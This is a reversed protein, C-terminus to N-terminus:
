HGIATIRVTVGSLNTGAVVETAVARVNTAAGTGSVGLATTSVAIITNNAGQAGASGAMVVSTPTFARLRSTAHDFEFIYGGAPTAIM